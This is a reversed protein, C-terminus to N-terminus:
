KLNSYFERVMNFSVGGTRNVIESGPVKVFGRREYLRLVPNDGRVSLSIAPYNEKATALIQTLLNTGVGQGRYDPLVAIALEPIKDSVYGFGKNEGLWLRLWAMGIARVDKEAIYGIDGIRGWNAAYRALLPQERVLEISPQHSAYRLMEWVIPEDEITSPRVIYNM